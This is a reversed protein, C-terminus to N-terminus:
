TMISHSRRLETPSYGTTNKFQKSFSYQNPYGLISSIENISMKTQEILFLAYQMQTKLHYKKPTTGYHKKFLRAFQRVSVGENIALTYISLRQTPNDEIYSKANEIYSFSSTSSNSMLVNLIDIFIQNLVSNCAQEFFYLGKNSYYNYLQEFKRELSLINGPTVAFSFPDNFLNVPEFTKNSYIGFRIPIITPLTKKDPIASHPFNNSVFIVKGRTLPEEKNDLFYCGNGKRVFLLHLDGNKRANEICWTAPVSLNHMKHIKFFYNYQFNSLMKILNDITLLNNLDKNSM